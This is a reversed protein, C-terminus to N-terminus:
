SSVAILSTASIISLASIPATGTPLSSFSIPIVSIAVYCDTDDGFAEIRLLRGGPLDHSGADDIAVRVFRDLVRDIKHLPSFDAAERHDVVFLVKHTHEAEAIDGLRYTMIKRASKQM